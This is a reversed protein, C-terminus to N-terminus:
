SARRSYTENWQPVRIPRAALSYILALRSPTASKPKGFVAESATAVRQHIYSKLYTYEENLLVTAIEEDGLEALDEYGPEEALVSAKVPVHGGNRVAPIFVENATHLRHGFTFAHRSENGAPREPQEVNKISFSSM